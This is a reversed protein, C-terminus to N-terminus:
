VLTLHLCPGQIQNFPHQILGAGIKRKSHSRILRLNTVDVLFCQSRSAWCVPSAPARTSWLQKEAYGHKVWLDWFYKIHVHCKERREAKCAWHLTPLLKEWWQWSSKLESLPICRAPHLRLLLFFKSHSKIQQASNAARYHWMFFFLNMASKYVSHMPTPPAIPNEM